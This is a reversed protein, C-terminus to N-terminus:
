ALPAFASPQTGVLDLRWLVSGAEDAVTLGLHNSSRFASSNDRLYEAFARLIGDEDPQLVGDEIHFHYRPM